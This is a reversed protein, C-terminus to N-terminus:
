GGNAATLVLSGIGPQIMMDVTDGPSLFTQPSWEWNFGAFRRAAFYVYSTGRVFMSPITFTTTSAATATGLREQMGTETVIYVIRDTFGDNEVKLTATEPRAAKHAQPAAPRFATTAAILGALSLAWLTGSRAAIRTSM